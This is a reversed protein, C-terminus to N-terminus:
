HRIHMVMGGGGKLHVSLVDANSVTLTRRILQNPDTSAPDTYLDATFTGEGLFSLPISVTRATSNTISGVFWENGKRRAVIVFESVEADPVITEDWTTPVIKLFDFGPQGEYAAPEDCIMGLYSELVVYMALMHCRTGFVLPRDYRIKFLSDPVARFGGLHYDVPGALLRTFPINIDHDPKMLDSWKDYEYNMAGERTLENPWTRSMGTPKAVGHFQIHLHHTAAKQLIEEQINIMEQDDRDMFDVMLGSVGWKEYLLFAEDLKPFLAAWHVWLRIGVHQTKAYDCVEQMNLGPVPKTVDTHPGPAFNEGDSVYWEHGGYEVVSHYEIGHRACFDIHYKQTEFNNGHVFSTDSINNGNWWPWTTKGPRIWSVDNIGSPENLSTLLNSEIFTGIRDSIMMVRWPSHHPLRAKVKIVNQGPLPSLRTTLTGQKKALYMGAYDRLAAETIAMYVPGPFVFLAPVDMLTDEKILSWPLASYSGEHSTTFDPLFLALVDPNETFRFTTNEDSLIFDSRNEQEPFEYRFAIGENFARVVLHIKRFPTNTETIPISVERYPHLVTKTKGAVLEYKEEDERFAPEMIRLDRNFDGNEVFSLGLEANEIVLNSKFYIAYVVRNNELVLDFRIASDPSILSIKERPLASESFLIFLVFTFVSRMIVQLESNNKQIPL